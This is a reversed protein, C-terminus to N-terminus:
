KKKKCDCPDYADILAQAADILMVATEHDIKKKASLKKSPKKYYEDYAKVKDQFKDLAKLGKDCKGKSFEKCAKKLENQLPKKVSRHV